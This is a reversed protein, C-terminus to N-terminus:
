LLLHQSDDYRRIKKDPKQLVYFLNNPTNTLFMDDYHLQTRIISPGM